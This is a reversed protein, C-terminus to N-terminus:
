EKQRRAREIQEAYKQRVLAVANLLKKANPMRGEKVLKEAQKELDTPTIKKEAM